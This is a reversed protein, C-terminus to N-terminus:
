GARSAAGRAPPELEAWVVPPVRAAAVILVDTPERGPLEVRVRRGEVLGLRDWDDIALRLRFRGADGAFYGYVAAGDLRVQGTGRM